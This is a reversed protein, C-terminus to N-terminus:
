QVPDHRSQVPGHQAATAAIRQLATLHDALTRRGAPTLSLWTRPVKGVHGKTVLVYGIDELASVNKSLASPTLECSEQVARFEAEDCGSLFACVRLRTVTRFADDLGDTV